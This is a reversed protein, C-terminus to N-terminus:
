EKLIWFELDCYGFDLDKNSDNESNMKKNM